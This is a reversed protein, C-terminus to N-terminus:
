RVDLISLTVLFFIHLPSPASPLPNWTPALRLYVIICGKRFYCCCLQQSFLWPTHDAHPANFGLLSDRLVLLGWRFGEFVGCSGKEKWSPPPPPGKWGHIGDPRVYQGPAKLAAHGSTALSDPTWSLVSRTPLIQLAAAHPQWPSTMLGQIQILSAASLAQPVITMNYWHVGPCPASGLECLYLVQKSWRDLVWNGSKKKRQRSLDTSAMLGVTGCRSVLGEVVSNCGQLSYNDWATFSVQTVCCRGLKRSAWPEIM